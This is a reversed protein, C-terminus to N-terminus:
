LMKELQEITQVKDLEAFIPRLNDDMEKCENLIDDAIRDDGAVSELLRNCAEIRSTIRRECQQQIYTEMPAFYTTTVQHRISEESFCEKMVEKLLKRMYKERNLFRAMHHFGAVVSRMSIEYEGLKFEWKSLWPLVTNKWKDKFLVGLSLMEKTAPTELEPFLFPM